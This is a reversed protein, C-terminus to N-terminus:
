ACRAAEGPTALLAEYEAALADWIAEPRFEAIARRRAAEGHRTRLAADALYREVARAIAEPDRVPVLTGTVGDQVADVCGPVATAVIPLGMAAAELAVNPFGERYTPLVVVDLAAYVPVSDDVSTLRVRVDSRLADLVEAPLPDSADADGAVVLHARLDRERLLRFAAALERVGKDRALRGLYGLVPADEPIGLAARSARRAEDGAPRFRATDVGNGSGSRLVKVKGPPCLGEAVVVDRISGSVSLVRHALRCATWETARLLLRRRGCATVLPLGRLHYVRIPTRALAAAIMGLLGGKPTHAHVVDPRIRRLERWLRWLAVLDRAPTISRAMPVGHVEVGEREGFARLREGPSAIAHIRAGCRGRLFAAQGRLFGLSSAVTMVHVLSPGGAAPAPDRAGREGTPSAASV